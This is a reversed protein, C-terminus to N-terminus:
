EKGGESKDIKPERLLDGEEFASQAQERTPFSNVTRAGCRPCGVRWWCCWSEKSHNTPNVAKRFEGRSGCKPCMLTLDFADPNFKAIRLARRNALEDVAIPNFGLQKIQEPSYDNMLSSVASALGQKTYTWESGDSVSVFPHPRIWEGLLFARLAEERTDRPFILRAPCRRYSCHAYYPRFFPSGKGVTEDEAGIRCVSGDLFATLAGGDVIGYGKYCLPCPYKEKLIKEHERKLAREAEQIAEREANERLIPPAIKDITSKPLRTREQVKQPPM